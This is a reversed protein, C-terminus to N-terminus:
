KLSYSSDSSLDWYILSNFNGIREKLFARCPLYFTVVAVIFYWAKRRLLKIVVM